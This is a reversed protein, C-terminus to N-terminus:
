SKRINDQIIKVVPCCFMFPHFVNPDQSKLGSRQRIELLPASSGIIYLKLTLLFPFRGTENGKVM